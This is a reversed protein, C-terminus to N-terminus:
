EKEKTCFQHIRISQRHHLAANEQCERVLCLLYYNRSDVSLDCTSRGDRWIKLHHILM